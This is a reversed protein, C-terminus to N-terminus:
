EEDKQRKEILSADFSDDRYEHSWHMKENVYDEYIKYAAQQFDKYVESNPIVDDQKLNTEKNLNKNEM